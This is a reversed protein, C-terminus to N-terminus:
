IDKLNVNIKCRLFISEPLSGFCDVGSCLEPEDDLECPDIAYQCRQGTFKPSCTCACTFVDLVGGNSCPQCIPKTPCLCKNPGLAYLFFLLVM